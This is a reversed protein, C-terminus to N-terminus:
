SNYHWERAATLADAARRMVVGIIDEIEVGKAAYDDCMIATFGDMLTTQQHQRLLHHEHINLHHIDRDIVITPTTM